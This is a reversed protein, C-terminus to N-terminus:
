PTISARTQPEPTGAMNMDAQFLCDVNEIGTDVRGGGTSDLTSMWPFFDGMPVGKFDALGSETGQDTTFSVVKELLRQVLVWSGCELFMSWLLCHVKHLLSSRKTGLTTLPYVHRETANLMKTSNETRMHRLENAEENGLSDWETGRSNILIDVAAAYTAPDEIRWQELIFFDYGGIPSSDAMLYLVASQKEVQRQNDKRRHLM